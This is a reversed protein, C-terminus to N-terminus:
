CISKAAPTLTRLNWAAFRRGKWVCVRVCGGRVEELSIRGIGERDLMEFVAEMDATEDVNHSHNMVFALFESFDVTGSGDEDVEHVLEM